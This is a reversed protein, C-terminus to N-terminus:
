TIVKYNYLNIFIKFSIEVNLTNLFFLQALYINKNIIILFAFVYFCFIYQYALITIANDDASMKKTMVIVVAWFFSSGLAMSVGLSIDIFGPRIIFIVGIFGIIVAVIRRLGVKENLLFPSRFFASLLKLFDICNAFM